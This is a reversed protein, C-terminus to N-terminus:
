SVEELMKRTEKFITFHIASVSGVVALPTATGKYLTLPGENKIIRKFCDGAGSYIPNTTSQTQLRTKVIDFPQGSLIRGCGAAWGSIFEVYFPEQKPEVNTTKKM